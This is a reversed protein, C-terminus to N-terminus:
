RLARLRNLLGAAAFGDPVRGIRAQFRRIAAGTRLASGGGDAVALPFLVARSFSKGCPRQRAPEGRIWM